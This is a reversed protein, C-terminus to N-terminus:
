YRHMPQRYRYGYGNAPRYYNLYRVLRKTGRVFRAQGYGDLCYRVTVIAADGQFRGTRKVRFCGELPGHGWRIIKGRVGFQNIRNLWPYQQRPSYMYRNGYRGNNYMNHNRHSRKNIYGDDADHDNDAYVPPRVNRKGHALAPTAITMGAMGFAALLVMAKGPSPKKLQTNM